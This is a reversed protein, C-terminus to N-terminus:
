KGALFLFDTSSPFFFVSLFLISKKTCARRFACAIGTPRTLGKLLAQASFATKERAEDYVYGCVSCVYKM